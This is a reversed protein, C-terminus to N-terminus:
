WSALLQSVAALFFTLIQPMSATMVCKILTLLLSGLPSALVEIQLYIPGAELYM